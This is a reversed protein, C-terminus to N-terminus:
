RLLPAAQRPQVRAVERSQQWVEIANPAYQSRAADLADLDDPFYHDEARFVHGSEDLFFFKYEAM